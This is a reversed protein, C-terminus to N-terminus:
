AVDLEGEALVERVDVHPRRVILELTGDDAPSRAVEALGAQLEDATRHQIESM